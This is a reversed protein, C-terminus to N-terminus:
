ILGMRRAQRESLDYRLRVDGSVFQDRLIPSPFCKLRCPVRSGLVLGQTVLELPLDPPFEIAYYAVPQPQEPPFARELLRRFFGQM